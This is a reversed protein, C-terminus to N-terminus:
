REALWVTFWGTGTVVAALSSPGRLTTAGVTGPMVVAVSDPEKYIRRQVGYRSPLTHVVAFKSGQPVPYRYDGREPAVASVAEALVTKDERLFTVVPEVARYWESGDGVFVASKFDKCNEVIATRGSTQPQLLIYPKPESLAFAVFRSKGSPFNYVPSFKAMGYPTAGDAKPEIFTMSQLSGCCPTAELLERALRAEDVYQGLCGSDTRHEGYVM